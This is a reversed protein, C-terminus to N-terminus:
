TEKRLAVILGHLTFDIAFQFSIAGTNLLSVLIAHFSSVNTHLAPLLPSFCYRSLGLSGKMVDRWVDDYRQRTRDSLPTILNHRVHGLSANM